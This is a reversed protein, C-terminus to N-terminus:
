SHDSHTGAAIVTINDDGGAELASNVLNKLRSRVNSSSILISEIKSNSLKDHLGDSTLIILDNVAFDYSGTEPECFGCGISQDLIDKSYHTKMEEETIEGEDLLSRAFSQDRTLQYLKKNRLLYLRCDGVHVWFLKHDRVLLSTLTTGMGELRKDQEAKDFIFRDIERAANELIQLEEGKNISSIGSLKGSTLEAAYDGEVEGGMGDAITLLVSGDTLKHSFYRDQNLKRVLGMHTHITINLFGTRTEASKEEAQVQKYFECDMCNKRKRAFSGQTQNNCFTGAVLWCIRGSELGQNFGSFGSNSAAPCVGKKIANKAGPERGCKMFEWCNIKVSNKRNSM